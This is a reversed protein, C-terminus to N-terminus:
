QLGVVETDGSIGALTVLSIIVAGRAALMTADRDHDSPRLRIRISTLSSGFRGANLDLEGSDASILPDVGQLRPDTVQGAPHSNREYSSYVYAVWSPSAPCVAGFGLLIGADVQGCRTVPDPRALRKGTRLDVVAGNHLYGRSDSAVSTLDASALVTGTETDLVTRRLSDWDNDNGVWFALLRQDSSLDSPWSALVDDARAAVTRQWDVDGTRTSVSLYGLRHTGGADECEPFLLGTPTVFLFSTNFDDIEFPCDLPARSTWIHHGDVASYGILQRDDSEVLADNGLIVHAGDRYLKDFRHQGTVADLVVLLSLNTDEEGAFVIALASGGPSVHLQEVQAGPRRYSWRVNGTTGDLGVVGDDVRLVAGLGAAVAERVTGPITTSWGIKSVSAPFPVDAMTAADATTAHLTWADSRAALPVTVAAVLATAGVFSALPLWGMQRWRGALPRSWGLLAGVAVAAGGVVGAIAFPGVYGHQYEDIVAALSWSSAGLGGLFLLVHMVRPASGPRVMYQLHRNQPRVSITRSRGLLLGVFIVGVTWGRVGRLQWLRLAFGTSLAWSAAVLCGAGGAVLGAAVALRCGTRTSTDEELHSSM